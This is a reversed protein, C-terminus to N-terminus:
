IELKLPQGLSIFRYLKKNYTFGLSSSETFTSRSLPNDISELLSIVDEYTNIHQDLQEIPLFPKTNEIKFDTKKINIKFLVIMAKPKGKTFAVPLEITNDKGQQVLDMPIPKGDVSIKWRNGVTNEVFLSVSLNSEHSSDNWIYKLNGRYPTFLLGSIESFNDLYYKSGQIINLDFNTEIKISNQMSEILILSDRLHIYRNPKGHYFDILSVDVGNLKTIDNPYFTVPLYPYLYGELETNKLEPITSIGSESIDCSKNIFYSDGVNDFYLKVRLTDNNIPSVIYNMKTFPILNVLTTLQSQKCNSSKSSKSSKDFIDSPRIYKEMCGVLEEKSLNKLGRFSRQELIKTGPFYVASDDDNVTENYLGDPYGNLLINRYRENSDQGDNKLKKCCPEIKGDPRKNGRPAVYYGEMPCTGHFSYPIPRFDGTGPINGKRNHCTKPQGGDVMNSIKTKKERKTELEIIDYGVENSYIILENLINKLFLYVDNNELPISRNETNVYSTRLQVAGRIYIMVSTKITDKTTNILTFQIFPNTLKNSRSYQSGSNYNYKSVFYYIDNVM